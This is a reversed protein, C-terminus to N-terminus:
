VEAKLHLQGLGEAHLSYTVGPVVDFPATLGGTFVIDGATLGAGETDLQTVLWAVAVWPSDMANAGIGHRDETGDSFEITLQDVESTEVENFTGVTIAAASSNDATNDLSKFTFSPFRPDVVEIGLAWSGGVGAVDAATVPGWLDCPSRYVLEPEVKPHIFSEVDLVGDRHHSDWLTGWNPRDIGLADRMAASTWGLKFGVPIQGNRRRIADTARAVARAQEWSLEPFRETLLPVPAATQAAEFLELGLAEPDFM